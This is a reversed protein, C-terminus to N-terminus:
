RLAGCMIGAGQLVLGLAFALVGLYLWRPSRLTIVRGGGMRNVEGTAPRALGILLASIFGLGLGALQLWTSTDTGSGERRGRPDVTDPLCYFQTVEVPGGSDGPAARRSAREGSALREQEGARHVEARLQLECDEYRPVARVIAWHGGRDKPDAHRSHERWLVWATTAEAQLPVALIFALVVVGIRKAM